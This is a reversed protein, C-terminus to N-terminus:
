YIFFFNFCPSNASILISHCSHEPHQKELHYIETEKFGHFGPCEKAGQIIRTSRGKNEAQHEMLINERVLKGFSKGAEAETLM